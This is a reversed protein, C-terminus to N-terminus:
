QYNIIIKNFDFIQDILIIMLKISIKNLWVINFENMEYMDM